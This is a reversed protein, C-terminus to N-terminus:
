IISNKYRRNIIYAPILIVICLAVLILSYVNAMNYNMSEVSEYIAVSAVRTKGPISGGIMLVVGFEGLTHAFALVVGTIIAPTSNPLIVRRLTTLRSKGLTDSAEILSRPINAFGARIPHVMFPLSYIISGVVLGGFSFVLRVDFVEDLWQGFMTSPSLLLLIYFGLVTPPLVLPLTILLDVVGLARNRSYALWYAVPIAILLLLITTVAALALSLLIPTLDAM